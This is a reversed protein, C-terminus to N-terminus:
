FALGCVPCCTTIAMPAEFKCDPCDALDNTTTYTIAKVTGDDNLEVDKILKREEETLKDWGKLAAIKEASLAMDVVRSTRTPKVSETSESITETPTSESSNEAPANAEEEAKKAEYEAKEKDALAKLEDYYTTRLDGDILKITNGFDSLLKQYSTVKFNNKLNYREYGLEEPTLSVDQSVFALKDGLEARAIDEPCKAFATANKVVYPSTMEGTKAIAVDYKEWSGYKGVLESLKTLFGYSPVGTDAYEVVKGDDQVVQNVRKSLLKTHKNDKCWSDERDIVNMIVVQQGSWGKTWSYQQDTPNFGGHIVKDYWPYGAYKYKKENKGNAGPVWEVEKVKNIIRWMIHEDKIDDAHPPLKLVVRKNSDNMIRSVYIEVADTDAAKRGPTMSEPPAGVIRVIKASDNELGVWKMEEYNAEYNGSSKRNGKEKDEAVKNLFASFAEDDTLYNEM